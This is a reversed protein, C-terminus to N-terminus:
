PSISNLTFLITKYYRIQIDEFMNYSDIFLEMVCAGFLREFMDIFGVVTYGSLINAPEDRM